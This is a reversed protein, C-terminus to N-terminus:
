RNSACYTAVYIAKGLASRVPPYQRCRRTAPTPLVRKMAEASAAIADGFVAFADLRRLVAAKTAM